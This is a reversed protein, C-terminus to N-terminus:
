DEDKKERNPIYIIFKAGTSDVPIEAKITGGMRTMLKLSIALGIGEGKEKTTFFPSFIKDLIQPDIPPGTNRYVLKVYLRDIEEIYFSVKQNPKLIHISNNLLNLIIQYFANWDLFVELTDPVKNETTIKKQNTLDSNQVFLKDIIQHLNIWKLKLETEKSVERISKLFDSLREIELITRSIYDMSKQSPWELINHLLVQLSMNIGALPNGVEHAVEAILESLKDYFINEHRTNSFVTKSAIESILIIYTHDDVPYYSFGLTIMKGRSKISIENGVGSLIREKGSRELIKRIIRFIEKEDYLKKEFFNNFYLPTGSPTHMFIIGLPLDNFIKKIVPDSNLTERDLPPDFGTERGGTKKSIRMGTNYTNRVPKNLSLSFVPGKQGVPGIQGAWFPGTNKHSESFRKWCTNEPTNLNASM